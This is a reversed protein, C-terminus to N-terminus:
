MNQGSHQKGGRCEGALNRARREDEEMIMQGIEPRMPTTTQRYAKMMTVAPNTGFLKRELEVREAVAAADKRERELRRREKREAKEAAEIELISLVEQPAQPADEGGGKGKAEKDTKRKKAAPGSSSSSSSGSSSSASSSSSSKKKKKKKKKKDKKDKKKKKKDKRKKDKKEKGPLEPKQEGLVEDMPNVGLKGAQKFFNVPNYSPDNNVKDLPVPPAKNQSIMHIVKRGTIADNV